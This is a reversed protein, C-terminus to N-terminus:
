CFTLDAIMLTLDIVDVVVDVDVVAIVVLITHIVWTDILFWVVVVADFDAVMITHLVWTDSFWLRTSCCANTTCVVQGSVARAASATCILQGSVTTRRERHLVTSWERYSLTSWKCDNNCWNCVRALSVALVHHTVLELQVVRKCSLHWCYLM